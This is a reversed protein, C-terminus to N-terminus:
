AVTQLVVGAAVDPVKVFQGIPTCGLKGHGKGPGIGVSVHLADFGVLTETGSGGTDGKVVVAETLIKIGPQLIEAQEGSIKIVGAPIEGNRSGHGPTFGSEAFCFGNHDGLFQLRHGDRRLTVTEPVVETDVSGTDATQVDGARGALLNVQYVAFPYLGVVGQIQFVDPEMPIFPQPLPIEGQEVSINVDALTVARFAIGGFESVVAEAVDQDGADGGFLCRFIQQGIHNHIGIQLDPTIEGAGTFGDVLKLLEGAPRIQSIEVVEGGVAGLPFLVAPGCVSGQGGLM